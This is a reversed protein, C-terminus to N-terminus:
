GPSNSSPNDNNNNVRFRKISPVWIVGMLWIYNIALGLVSLMTRSLGFLGRQKDFESARAAIRSELFDASDARELILALDPSEQLEMLQQRALVLQRRDIEAQLKVVLGSLKQDNKGIELEGLQQVFPERALTNIDNVERLEDALIIGSIGTYVMSAKKLSAEIRGM